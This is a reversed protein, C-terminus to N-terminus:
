VKYKSLLVHGRSFRFGGYCFFKLLITIYITCLAGDEVFGDAINEFAEAFARDHWKPLGM